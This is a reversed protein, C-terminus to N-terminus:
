PVENVSKVIQKNVVLTINEGSDVLVSIDGERYCGELYDRVKYERKEPQKTEYEVEWSREFGEALCDIGTRARPHLSGVPDAHNPVITSVVQPPMTDVLSPARGTSQGASPPDM